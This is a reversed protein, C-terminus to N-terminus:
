RFVQWMDFVSVAERSHSQEPTEELAGAECVRSLLDSVSVAEAQRDECGAVEETDSM